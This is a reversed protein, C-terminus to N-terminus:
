VEVAVRRSEQAVMRVPITKKRCEPGIGLAQSLRDSLPRDCRRCRIVRSPDPPALLLPVRAELNLFDEQSNIGNAKLWNHATMANDWENPTLEERTHGMAWRIVKVASVTWNVWDRWALRTPNRGHEDYITITENGLLKVHEM